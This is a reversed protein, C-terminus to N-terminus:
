VFGELVDRPIIRISLLLGVMELAVNSETLRCEVKGVYGGVSNDTSLVLISTEISYSLPNYCKWAWPELYM